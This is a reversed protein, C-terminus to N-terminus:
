LYFFSPVLGRRKRQLIILTAYFLHFRDALKSIVEPDHLYVGIEWVVFLLAFREM